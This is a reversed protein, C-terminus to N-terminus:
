TQPNPWSSVMHKVGPELYMHDYYAPTNTGPMGKWGLSRHTLDHGYPVAGLPAEGPNARAKCACM